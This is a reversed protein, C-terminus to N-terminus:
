YDTDGDEDTAEEGFYNDPDDAGFVACLDDEDEDEFDEFCQERWASELGREDREDATLGRWNEDEYQPPICEDSQAETLFDSYEDAM